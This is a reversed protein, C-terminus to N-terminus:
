LANIVRLRDAQFLANKNTLGYSGNSRDRLEGVKSKNWNNVRSYYGVIRTVGQLVIPPRVNNIINVFERAKDMPRIGNAGVTNIIESISVEIFAGEIGEPKSHNRIVFVEGKSNPTQPEPNPTATGIIELNGSMEIADNFTLLSNAIQDDTQLPSRCNARVPNEKLATVM